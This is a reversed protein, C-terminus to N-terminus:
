HTSDSRPPEVRHALWFHATNFTAEAMELAWCVVGCEAESLPDGHRVKARIAEIEKRYKLLAPNMKEDLAARMETSTM